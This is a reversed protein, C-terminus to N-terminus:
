KKIGRIVTIPNLSRGQGGQDMNANLRQVSIRSLDVELGVREMVAPASAATSELIANVVMIGGPELRKACCNIIQELRGGSGGIFVRDPRPLGTLAEPALGEVPRLNLIGLRRCNKRIVQILEPRKEVAFACTDPYLRAMELAVSGSGAGVDWFIQGPGPSLKHITVARIEDKTILGRLHEVESETLGLGPGRNLMAEPITCITINLPSFRTKAAEHLGYSGTREGPCKLDEAVHLRVQEMLGRHDLSELHGILGEAIADPSNKRDTFLITMPSTLIRFPFLEGDRGHLSLIRARDWPLAFRACALQLSSLAPHFKLKDAGFAEILRRGIGFFLPDGSALVACPGKAWAQFLGDIMADVPTIPIPKLRSTLGRFEPGLRNEAEKVAELLRSSAAAAHCSALIKLAGPGLRCGSVGIVHIKHNSAATV